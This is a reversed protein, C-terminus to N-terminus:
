SNLMYWTVHKRINESILAKQNRQLSIIPILESEIDHLNQKSQM